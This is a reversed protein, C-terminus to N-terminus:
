IARFHTKWFTFIAEPFSLLILCCFLSFSTTSNALSVSDCNLMSLFHLPYDLGCPFLFNWRSSLFRVKRRCDSCILVYDILFPSRSQEIMAPRKSRASSSNKVRGKKSLRQSAQHRTLVALDHIFNDDSIHLLWFPKGIVLCTRTNWNNTLKLRDNQLISTPEQCLKFEFNLKIFVFAAVRM